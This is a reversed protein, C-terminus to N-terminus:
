PASRRHNMGARVAPVASTSATKVPGYSLTDPMTTKPKEGYRSAHRRPEEIEDVHQSGLESMGAIDWAKSSSMHRPEAVNRLCHVRHCGGPEPDGDSRDPMPSPSPGHATPSLESAPGATRMESRSTARAAMTFVEGVLELVHELLEIFDIESLGHCAVDM